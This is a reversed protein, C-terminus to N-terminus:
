KEEEFKLIINYSEVNELVVEQEGSGDLNARMIVKKSTDTWYIKQAGHDVAIGDARVIGDEDDYLVASTSSTLNGIALSGLEEDAWYIVRNPYFANIQSPSRLAFGPYFLKIIQIPEGDVPAVRISANEGFDSYFIAKLTPEYAMGYCYNLVKASDFMIAVDATGDMSGKKMQGTGSNAWYLVGNTADFTVATPELVSDGEFQYLTEISGTGDLNFRIVRDAMEEAAYIKGGVFDIAMGAVTDLGDTEDMLTTATKLNSLDIVGIRKGPYDTFYLHTASPKPKEPEPACSHLVLIVSCLIFISRLFKM